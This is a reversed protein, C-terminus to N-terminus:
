NNKTHTHACYDVIEFAERQVLREGRWRFLGVTLSHAAQGGRGATQKRGRRQVALDLEPRHLREVADLAEVIALLVAVGVVPEGKGHLVEEGDVVAVQEAGHADSEAEPVHDRALAEDVAGLGVAGGDLV